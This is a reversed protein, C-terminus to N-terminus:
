ASRARRTLPIVNVPLDQSSPLPAGVLPHVGEARIVRLGAPASDHDLPRGHLLRVV